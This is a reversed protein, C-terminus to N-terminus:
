GTRLMYPTSSSAATQPVTGQQKSAKHNGLQAHRLFNVMTVALLAFRAYQTNMLAKEAGLLVELSLKAAAIPHHCSSLM